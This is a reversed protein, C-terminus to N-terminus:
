PHITRVPKVTVYDLGGAGDVVPPWEKFEFTMGNRARFRPLRGEFQILEERMANLRKVQQEHWQAQETAVRRDSGLSEIERQLRMAEGRRLKVAADWRAAADRERELLISRPPLSM